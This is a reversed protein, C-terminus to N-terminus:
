SRGSSSLLSRSHRHETWRTWVQRLLPNTCRSIINDSAALWKKKRAAEAAVVSLLNSFALPLVPETITQEIEKAGIGGSGLREIAAVMIRFYRESESIECGLFDDNNRVAEPRCEFNGLDHEYIHLSDSLQHYGGPQIGLWGALIEQLFTFQVLNYPLGLVVDNSRVIQMWELRGESVKVLSCVNCPIDEDAPLGAKDPLDLSADWIQLVVQRSSPVNRLAEYARKLQDIGFHNRIRAGYAGHYAGGTGAFLPLRKNWANVFGSDARGALIWFAEAIAFAPNIPPWRSVVWRQRPDAIRLLVHLSERTPGGRTDPRRCAAPGRLAEFAQTWAADASTGEIVTM